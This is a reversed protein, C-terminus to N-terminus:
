NMNKNGFHMHAALVIDGPIEGTIYARYRMVNCYPNEDSCEELDCDHMPCYEFHLDIYELIAPAVMEAIKPREIRWEGKLDGIIGYAIDHADNPM